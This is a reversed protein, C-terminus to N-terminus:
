GVSSRPTSSAFVVVTECAKDHLGQRNRDWLIQLFGLLGVSLSAAYGGFREFSIWWGLPKGDLRLVRVGAIKKGPTQGRWLALFATFYVASWGFGVGMDDAAGAIFKRFGHAKRAKELERKLSNERADLLAVRTQLRELEPGAIVLRVSDRYAAVAATEGSEAAIIYRRLVTDPDALPPPTGAVKLIAADIARIKSSDNTEGMMGILDSRMEQVDNRSAGAKEARQLLQGSAQEVAASDEGTRLSIAAGALGPIDSPEFSLKESSIGGDSSADYDVERARDGPSVRDRVSGWSDKIVIFLIIAGAIRLSMRVSRKVFGIRADSASARFLLIAAVIGLFVGGAKVLMAIILLDIGMAFARRGPNALPVGLIEPAM